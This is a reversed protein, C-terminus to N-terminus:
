LMPLTLRRTHGNILTKTTAAHWELFHPSQVLVPGSLIVMLLFPTLIRGEYKLMELTEETLIHIELETTDQEAFDGPIIKFPLRVKKETNDEKYSLVMFHRGTDADMPVPLITRYTNRGTPYLEDAQYVFKVRPSALPLFASVNLTAIEGQKYVSKDLIINQILGNILTDRYPSKNNIKEVIGLSKEGLPLVEKLYETEVPLNKINVRIISPESLKPLLLPFFEILKDTPLLRRELSIKDLSKTTDFQSEQAFPNHWFSTLFFIILLFIINAQM